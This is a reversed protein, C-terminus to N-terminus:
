FKNGKAVKRHGLTKLVREKESEINFTSYSELVSKNKVPHMLM